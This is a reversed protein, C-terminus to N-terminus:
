ENYILICPPLSDSVPSQINQILCIGLGCALVAAGCGPGARFAVPIRGLWRRALPRRRPTPRAPPAPRIQEAKGVLCAAGDLVLLSV